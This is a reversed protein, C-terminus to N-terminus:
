SRRSAATSAASGISRSGRPPRCSCGSTQRGRSARRRRSRAALAFYVVRRTDLARALAALAVFGTAQTLPFGFLNDAYMLTFANAVALAAAILAVTNTWVRRVFDYLAAIGLASGAIAILRLVVLGSGGLRGMLTAADRAPDGVDLRLSEGVHLALFGLGVAVCGGLYVRLWRTPDRESAM